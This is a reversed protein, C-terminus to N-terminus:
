RRKNRKNKNPAPAPKGKTPAASETAAPAPAKEEAAPALKVEEAAPLPAIPETVAKTDAAPPAEQAAPQEQQLKQAVAQIAPMLADHCHKTAAKIDMRPSSANLKECIQAALVWSALAERAKGDSNNLDGQASLLKVYAVSMDPSLMKLRTVVAQGKAYTERAEEPDGALRQCDGLCRYSGLVDTAARSIDQPVESGEIDKGEEPLVENYLAEDMALAKEYWALAGAANNQVMECYGLGNYAASVSRRGETSDKVAQPLAEMEQLAAEFDGKAKAFAKLDRRMQAIQLAVRASEEAHGAEAKLATHYNELLELLEKTEGNLEPFLDSDAAKAVMTFVAKDFLAARAGEVTPAAPTEAAAPAEAQEAPQEAPQEAAPAEAEKDGCASLLSLAAVAAAAM